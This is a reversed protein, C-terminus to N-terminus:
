ILGTLMAILCAITAFIIDNGQAYFLAFIVFGLGGFILVKGNIPYLRLIKFLLNGQPDVKAKWMSAACPLAMVFTVM